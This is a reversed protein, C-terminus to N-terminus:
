GGPGDGPIEQVAIDGEEEVLDLYNAVAIEVMDSINRDTLVRLSHLKVHQHLPLQVKLPKTDGPARPM